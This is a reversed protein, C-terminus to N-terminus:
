DDRLNLQWDNSSMLHGKPYEFERTGLLRFGLRACIANSPANDVAPFAHLFRRSRQSRASEIAAGAAAGAVGRGQFAPLVSWGIEYVPRDLWEREWYGVWGIGQGTTDDVIKYQHSDPPAYRRQRDAIKAPSEPGGLHEMMAPDGVLRELLGLDGEGWAELHVASV